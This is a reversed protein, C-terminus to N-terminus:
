GSLVSALLGPARSLRLGAVLLLSALDPTGLSHQVTCRGAPCSIGACASWGGGAVQGSGAAAAPLAWATRAAALRLGMADEKQETASLGRCVGRQASRSCALEVNGQTDPVRWSLCMGTGGAGAAAPSGVAAASRTPADGVRHM